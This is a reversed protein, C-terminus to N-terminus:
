EKMARSVKMVGNYMTILIGAVNIEKGFLVESNKILNFVQPLGLLSLAEAQVTVVVSTAASLANYNYINIGPPCDILVFDYQEKVSGLRESLLNYKGEIKASYIGIANDAPLVDGNATKQVTEEFTAAGTLFEFVTNEGETTAGMCFSLSGQADLDVCLVRKGLKKLYAAFHFCTTTKGVGGKQNMFVITKM